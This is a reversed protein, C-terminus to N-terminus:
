ADYSCLQVQDWVLPFKTFRHDIKARDTLFAGLVAGALRDGESFPFIDIARHAPPDVRFATEHVPVHDSGVATDTHRYAGVGM